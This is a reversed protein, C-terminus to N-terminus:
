SAGKDVPSEVFGLRNGSPDRIVAKYSGWPTRRPPSVVEVKDGIGRWYADL